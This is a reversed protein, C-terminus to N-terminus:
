KKGFTMKNMMFLTLPMSYTIQTKLLNIGMLLILQASLAFCDGKKYCYKTKKHKGSKLAEVWKEAFEKPLKFRKTKM